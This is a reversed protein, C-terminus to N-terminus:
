ARAHPDRVRAVRGHVRIGGPRATADGCGALRVARIVRVGDPVRPADREVAGLRAIQIVDIGDARELVVRGTVVRPGADEADVPRAVEEGGHGPGGAVRDLCVLAPRVARAGREPHRAAGTRAEARARAKRRPPLHRDVVRGRGALQVGGDAAVTQEGVDAHEGAPRAAVGRQQARDRPERGPEDAAHDGGNRDTRGRAVDVHHHLRSLEAASPVHRQEGTM